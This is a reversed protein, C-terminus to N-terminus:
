LNIMVVGLLIVSIGALRMASLNEHLVFRSLLTVIIYSISIMPYARSLEMSSIVVLWILMSSVFVVIGVAIHPELLVGMVSGVVNHPDFRFGGMSNVGVKLLFQAIAGLSISVLALPILRNM